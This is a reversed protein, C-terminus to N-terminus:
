ESDTRRVQGESWNVAAGRLEPGSPRFNIAGATLGPDPTQGNETHNLCLTIALM